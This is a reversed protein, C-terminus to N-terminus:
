RVPSPRSTHGSTTNRSSRILLSSLVDLAETPDDVLFAFATDNSVPIQGLSLDMCLGPLERDLLGPDTDLALSHTLLM